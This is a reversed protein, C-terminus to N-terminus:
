KLSVYWDWKRIAGGTTSGDSHTSIVSDNLADYAIGGIMDTYSYIDQTYIHCWLLNMSDGSLRGYILYKPPSNKVPDYYGTTWYFSGSFGFYVGGNGDSCIMAVSYTYQPGLRSGLSIYGGPRPQGNSM